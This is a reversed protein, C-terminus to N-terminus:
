INNHLLLRSHISAAAPIAPGSNTNPAFSVSLKSRAADACYVSDAARPLDVLDYLPPPPPPPANEDHSQIALAAAEELEYRLAWDELRFGYFLFFM